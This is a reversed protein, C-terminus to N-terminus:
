ARRRPGTGVRPGSIPPVAGSAAGTSALADDIAEFIEGRHCPKRLIAAIARREPLQDLAERDAGTVLVIPIAATLPNARLQRVVASGDVIPILLDLLIVDPRDRCARAYGDPGNSATVVRYRPSAAVRLFEVHDTNDDVILVTHPAAPPELTGAPEAM